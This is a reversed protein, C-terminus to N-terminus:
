SGSTQSPASLYVENRGQLSINHGITVQTNLIYCKLHTIDVAKLSIVPGDIEGKLDLFFYERMYLTLVRM